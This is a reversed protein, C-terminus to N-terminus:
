KRKSKPKAKPKSLEALVSKAEENGAEGAADLWIKAKTLDRPGGIGHLCVRAMQMMAVDDGMTAGKEYLERAQKPNKAVAIGKETFMAVKTIGRPNGLDAARKYYGYAKKPDAASGQGLEYQEGLSVMAPAYNKEVAIEYYFRARVPDKPVGIGHGYITGLEQLALTNGLEFAKTFHAFAEPYDKSAMATRGLQYPFRSVGPFRRIAEQCAKLAQEVQIDEIRVGKVWRTREVDAPSTAFTDCPQVANPDLGGGLLQAASAHRSEPAGALYIKSRSLQGYMFPTQKNGTSKRVEDRVNRFLFNIELAPQPFYKVLAKTLPSNRGDGEASTTKDKETAFFFLVNRLLDTPVPTGELKENQRDAKILSNPRFADLVILGFSRSRAVALTLINLPLTEQALTAGANFSADAPVIYQEGAFYVSHGAFYAIAADAKASQEGFTKIAQRLDEAKADKLLTVEFGLGTLVGAIDEADNISTALSADKYHANGIVLAVREAARATGCIAAILLTCALALCRVAISANRRVGLRELPARIM